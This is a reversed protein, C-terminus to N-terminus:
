GTQIDILLHIRDDASNNEASHTERHNFWWVEDSKMQVTEEGCHFLCGPLGQVCAHFRLGDDRAAYNGYNDAHRSIVGGMPLRAIIVRGLSIGRFRRMLNFVVEHAEPLLGWADYQVLCTDNVLADPDVIGEHMEPRSYRPVM